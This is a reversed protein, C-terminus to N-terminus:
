PQFLWPAATTVGLGSERKASGVPTLLGKTGSAQGRARSECAAAPEAPRLIESSALMVSSCAPILTGFPDSLSRSRRTM